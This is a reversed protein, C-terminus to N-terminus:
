ALSLNKLLELSSAEAQTQELQRKHALGLQKPYTEQLFNMVWRADTHQDQELLVKAVDLGLSIIRSDPYVSAREQLSTTEAKFKMLFKLAPTPNPRTPHHLLLHSLHIDRRPTFAPLMHLFADFMAPSPTPRSSSGIISERSLFLGAKSLIPRTPCKLKNLHHAAMRFSAFAADLSVYGSAEARILTNLFHAVSKTIAQQDEATTWALIMKDIWIWVATQLEEAVLFDILVDSFAEDQLFKLNDAPDSAMLWRLVKSGAGSAKMADRVSLVSSQVIVRKKTKLCALAYELKMFGKACAEDFIDMPDRPLTTRVDPKETGYSFLPNTLVSHLHRDTPAKNWPRSLSDRRRKGSVPNSSTPKSLAKGSADVEARFSGHERDLQQRFSTTLLNLLQTSERPNLPLPQHIKFHGLSSIPRFLLNHTAQFM